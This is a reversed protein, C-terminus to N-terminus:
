DEEFRVTEILRRRRPQLRPAAVANEHSNVVSAHGVGNKAGSNGGHVDTPGEVIQSQGKDAHVITRDTLKREFMQEVAAQTMERETARRSALIRILIKAAINKTFQRPLGATVAVYMKPLSTAPLSSVPLFPLLLDGVPQDAKRLRHTDHSAMVISPM